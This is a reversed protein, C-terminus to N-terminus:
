NQGHDDEMAKQRIPNCNPISQPRKIMEPFPVKELADKQDDAIYPAFPALFPAGYSDLSATYVLLVVLGAVLGYLGLFGGVLCFIFRLVSIQAIMNPMIYSTIGSIAVVLVTPASLLGVSAAVEGVVFVAIISTASGLHKPMVLTAEYIIEFLLIVIIMEIIPPFLDNDTANAITALTNLPIISLHYLSVALFFGPLLIAIFAGLLRIIRKLNVGANGGYYDNSNQINELFIHPITLVVPSGDVLIAIRGELLRAAVIDPKEEAAATAYLAVPDPNLYESIYSADIIGDCNIQQLRHRVAKVVSPDAISKIYGLLVKTQTYKGITLEVWKLDKSKIRKTILAVNTDISEIFGERPGLLVQGTPPETLSREPVTTSDTKAM